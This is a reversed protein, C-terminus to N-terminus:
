SYPQSNVGALLVASIPDFLVGDLLSIRSGHKRNAVRSKVKKHTQVPASFGLFGKEEWRTWRRWWTSQKTELPSAIDYGDVRFFIDISGDDNEHTASEIVAGNKFGVPYSGSDM